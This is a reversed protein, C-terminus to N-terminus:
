WMLPPLLLRGQVGLSHKVGTQKVGKQQLGGEEEEEEEM